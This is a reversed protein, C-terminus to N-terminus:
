VRAGDVSRYCWRRGQGGRRRELVGGGHRGLTGGKSVSMSVEAPPRARLLRATSQTWIGGDDYFTLCSCITISEGRWRLTANMPKALGRAQRVRAESLRRGARPEVRTRMDDEGDGGDFGSGPRHWSATVSTLTPLSPEKDLLVWGGTARDLDEDDPRGVESTDEGDIGAKDRCGSGGWAM